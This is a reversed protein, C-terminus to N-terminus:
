LHYQVYLYSPLECKRFCKVADILLQQREFPFVHFPTLTLPPRVFVISFCKKRCRYRTAAKRYFRFHLLDFYIYPCFFPLSSGLSYLLVRVSPLSSLLFSPFVPLFAPLFSFMSSANKNKTKRSCNRWPRLSNTKQFVTGLPQPYFCFYTSYNVM